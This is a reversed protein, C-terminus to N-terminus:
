PQGHVEVSDGPDFAGGGLGGGVGGLHLAEDRLHERAHLRLAVRRDRVVRAAEVLGLEVTELDRRRRPLGGHVREVRLRPGVGLEGDGIDAAEGLRLEGAEPRELHLDQGAGEEAVPHDGHLTDAAVDGASAEREQRRRDHGDDRGLHCAHVLHDGAQRGVRVLGHDRAAVERAGVADEADTARLGDRGEGEPRLRHGRHVLDHAGAVGEHVLGLPLDETGDADVLEGTRGLDVDEGVAGAVGLHDRGVEERLGLM